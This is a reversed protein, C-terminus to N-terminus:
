IGDNNSQRFQPLFLCFKRCPACLSALNGYLWQIGCSKSIKYFCDSFKLQKTTPLIRSNNVNWNKACNVRDCIRSTRLWWQRPVWLVFSVSTMIGFFSNRYLQNRQPKCYEPDAIRIGMILVPFVWSWCQSYGPDDICIGLILLAFVWYWCNSLTYM